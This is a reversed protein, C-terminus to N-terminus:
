LHQVWEEQRQFNTFTNIASWSGLFIYLLNNLRAPISNKSLTSGDSNSSFIASQSPRITLLEVLTVSSSM